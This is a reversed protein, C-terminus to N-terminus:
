QNAGLVWSVNFTATFTDDGGAWNDAHTSAATGYMAFGTFGSSLTADSATLNPEIVGNVYVRVDTGIIQLKLVDGSAFTWANYRIM